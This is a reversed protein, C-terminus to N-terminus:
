KHLYRREIDTIKDVRRAHRDGGFATELWTKVIQKALNAGILGGGLTLVNADNHERSNLATSIDYCM